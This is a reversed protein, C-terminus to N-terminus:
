AFRVIDDYQHRQEVADDEQKAHHAVDHHNQHHTAILRHAARRVDEEHTQRDSVQRHNEDAHWGRQELEVTVVDPM